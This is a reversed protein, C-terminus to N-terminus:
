PRRGLAELAQLDISATAAKLTDPRIDRGTIEVLFRDSVIVTASGTKAPASYKELAKYDGYKTTREYGDDGESDIEASTWAMGALAGFPGMAALDTLKVELHPGGKDGYEGRAQAVTAGFASTKEGRANTRRLGAIEAPLLAKLEGIDVAPKGGLAALPNNNTGLFGKLFDMATTMAQQGDKPLPTAPTSGGVSFTGDPGTAPRSPAANTAAPMPPNQAQAVAALVCALFASLSSKM